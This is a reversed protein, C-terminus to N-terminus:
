GGFCGRYVCWYFAHMVALCQIGAVADDAVIGWGGPWRQSQHAPPLKIIDFFRSVGFAIAWLWPDPPLGLVCIPFTMFEDAVIRGDDKRGFHREALDCLPVALLALTAAALAQLPLNGLRALLLALPIGPLTGATGSAVPSLGLGFGTAMRVAQRQWVTRCRSLELSRWKM